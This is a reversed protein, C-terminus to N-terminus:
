RKFDKKKYSWNLRKIARWMSTISVRTGTKKKFAKCLEDLTMDPQKNLLTKVLFLHTDSVAPKRGAVYSKPLLDEKQKYLQLYQYVTVPSVRFRKAIERISGEGDLYSQVIRQRLDLHYYM